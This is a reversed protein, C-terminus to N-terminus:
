VRALEEEVFSHIFELELNDGDLPSLFNLM